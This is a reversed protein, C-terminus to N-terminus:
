DDSNLIQEQNVYYEIDAVKFEAELQQKVHKPLIVDTYSGGRTEDIGFMNMFIKVNKDVDYLDINEMVYVVRRPKYIKAFHYLIECDALIQEFSRKFSAHLMMKDEELAVFYLNLTRSSADSDYPDTATKDINTIISEMAACIQKLKKNNQVVLNDLTMNEDFSQNSADGYFSQSNALKLIDSAIISEDNYLDSESGSKLWEFRKFFEEEWIEPPMPPLTQMSSDVINVSSDTFNISQGSIDVINMSSDLTNDIIDVVAYNSRSWPFFCGCNDNNNSNSM